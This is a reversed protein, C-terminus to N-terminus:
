PLCWSSRCSCVALATVYRDCYEVLAHRVLWAHEDRDLIYCLQSQGDAPVGTQCSCCCTSILVTAWMCSSSSHERLCCPLGSTLWCAQLQESKTAPQLM